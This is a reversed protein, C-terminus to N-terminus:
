MRECVTGGDITLFGDGFVIEEFGGMRCFTDEGVPYLRFTLARGDEDVAKAYLEGEKPFVEGVFFGAGEPRRYRGCFSEWKSRDSDRVVLDELGTVPGPEKDRSVAVMGKAFSWYARADEYERTNAFIFARDPDVGREYWTGLGPLGGSHNVLLGLGPDRFAGWGFGYGDREGELPGAPSGDNLRGPAYMLKQEEATLVREGRLARDWRFMDSVTSYGNDLGNLGDGSYMEARSAEAKEAPIYRGDELVMCRVFADSPFGDRLVHYVGTSRMGAPGFVNRELFAEFPGGSAKEVIEALLSYGTNSYEFREGPSFLPGEGSETLFRLVVDNAPIRKETRWLNEIWESEEIEPVGSTHTLLHRVTVDGYPLEPFFETVRDDLALRGRRRLLLVAAATFQKTVSALQFVSDTRMPLRDEADRWGYAGQSVVEGNEAYLWVGNFVGREYAERTLNGMLAKKDM